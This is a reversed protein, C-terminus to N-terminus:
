IYHQQNQLYNSLPRSWEFVILHTKKQCDINDILWMQFENNNIAVADIADFQM